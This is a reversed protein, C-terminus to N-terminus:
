QTNYRKGKLMLFASTIFIVLCVIVMTVIIAENLTELNPLIFDPLNAFAHAVITLILSKTQAFIIGFIIGMFTAGLALTIGGAFFHIAGFVVGSILIAVIPSFNKELRKLIIGRFIFEEAIPAFILLSLLKLIDGLYPAISNFYLRSEFIIINQQSEISLTCIAFLISASVTM